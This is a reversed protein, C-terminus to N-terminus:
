TEAPVSASGRARGGGWGRGIVSGKWPWVARRWAIGRDQLVGGGQDVSGEALSHPRSPPRLFPRPDNRIPAGPSVRPHPSRRRRAPGGELPSTSNPTPAGPGWGSGGRGGAVPRRLHARRPPRPNAADSRTRFKRDSTPSSTACGSTPPRPPPCPLSTRSPTSVLDARPCKEDSATGLPRGVRPTPASSLYPSRPSTVAIPRDATGSRDCLEPHPYLLSRRHTHISTPEAGTDVCDIRPVPSQRPDSM